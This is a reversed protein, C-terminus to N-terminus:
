HHNREERIFTRILHVLRDESVPPIQNNHWNRFNTQEQDKVPFRRGKYQRQRNYQPGWHQQRPIRYQQNYQFFDNNYDNNNWTTICSKHHKYNCYARTCTNSDASLRCIYTAHWNHCENGENCGNETVGGINYKKCQNPHYRQCKGFENEGKAGYRCRGKTLFRCIKDKNMNPYRVVDRYVPINNGNGNNNNVGINNSSDGNGNNGNNDSNNNNDNNNNNNTSTSIRQQNQNQLNPLTNSKKVQSGVHTVSHPAHHIEAEVEVIEFESEALSQTQKLNTVPRPAHHIEAEAEVINSESDATTIKPQKPNITTIPIIDIGNGGEGEGETVQIRKSPIQNLDFGEFDAIQDLKPLYHTNFIPECTECLWLIGPRDKMSDMETCDHMGVKCWMCHIEPCDELKVIYHEKCKRCYKPMRNEIERVLLECLGEICMEKLKQTNNNESDKRDPIIFNIAKIFIEKKESWEASLDLMDQKIQDPFSRIVPSFKDILDVISKDEIYEIIGSLAVTEAEYAPDETLDKFTMMKPKTKSGNDKKRKKDPSRGGYFAMFPCNVGTRGRKRGGALTPSNDNDEITKGATKEKTQNQEPPTEINLHVSSRRQNNELVKLLNADAM